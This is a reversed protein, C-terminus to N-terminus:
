NSGIYIYPNKPHTESIRALTHTHTHLKSFTLHWLFSAARHVQHTSHSTHSPMHQTLHTFVHTTHPTHLCTNHSIHSPMHQTLHTFVHAIHHTHHFPMHEILYISNWTNTETILFVDNSTIVKGSILCWM